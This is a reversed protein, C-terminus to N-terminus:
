MMRVKPGQHHTLSEHQVLSAWQGSHRLQRGDVSCTEQKKLFVLLSAHLADNLGNGMELSNIDYKIFNENKLM